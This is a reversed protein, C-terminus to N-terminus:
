PISGTSLRVRGSLSDAASPRARARARRAGTRQRFRVGARAAAPLRCRDRRRRGPRAHHRRPAPRRTASAPPRCALVAPGPPEGARETRRAVRMGGCVVAEGEVACSSARATGARRRADRCCPRITERPGGARAARWRGLAGAGAVRRAQGLGRFRPPRRRRARARACRDRRRARSQCAPPAEPPRPEGDRGRGAEGGAAPHALNPDPRPPRGGSTRHWGDADAAVGNIESEVAHLLPDFSLPGAHRATAENSRSL